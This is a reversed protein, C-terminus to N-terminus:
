ARPNNNGFVFWKLANDRMMWKEFNPRGEGQESFDVIEKLTFGVRKAMNLISIKVFEASGEEQEDLPQHYDIGKTKPAITADFVFLGDQKVFLGAKSFVRFLDDNSFYPTLHVMIAADYIDPLKGKDLISGQLFKVKDLSISKERALKKNADIGISSIDMATVGYGLRALELTNKGDGSGIDLIHSSEPNLQKRITNIVFSDHLSGNGRIASNKLTLKYGDDFRLPRMNIGFSVGANDKNLFTRKCPM